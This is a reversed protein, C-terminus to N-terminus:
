MCSSYHWCACTCRQYVLFARSSSLRPLPGYKGTTMRKSPQILFSGLGEKGKSLITTLLSQDGVLVAAFLPTMGNEEKNVLEVALQADSSQLLGLNGVPMQQHFQM